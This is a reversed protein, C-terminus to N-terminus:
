RLPYQHSIVRRVFPQNHHQGVFFSVANDSCQCPPGTTPFPCDGFFIPLAKPTPVASVVVITLPFHHHHSPSSNIPIINTPFGNSPRSQWAPDSQEIQGCRSQQTTHASEKGVWFAGKVGEEGRAFTIWGALGTWVRMGM